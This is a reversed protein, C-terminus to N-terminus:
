VLTSRLVLVVGYIFFYSIVFSVVTDVETHKVNRKIIETSQLFLKKTCRCQRIDKSQKVEAFDGWLNIQM